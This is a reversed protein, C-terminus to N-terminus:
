STKWITHLSICLIPGRPAGMAEFPGQLLLLPVEILFGVRVPSQGHKLFLHGQVQFLVKHVQRPGGRECVAGQASCSAKDLETLQQFLLALCLHTPSAQVRECIKQMLPLQSVPLFHPTLTHECLCLIFPACAPGSTAAGVLWINVQRPQRHLRPRPGRM